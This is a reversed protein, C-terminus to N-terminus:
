NIHIISTLIYIYVQEIMIINSKHYDTILIYMCTCPGLYAIIHSRGLCFWAVSLASFVSKSNLGGNGVVVTSSSSLDRAQTTM